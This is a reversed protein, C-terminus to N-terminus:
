RNLFRELADPLWRKGEKSTEGDQDDAGGLAQALARNELRITVDPIQGDIRFSIALRGRRDLLYRVIRYDRQVEQTLRPSLVLLGNWRTSRDFGIWGAGTITYDPTIIVLSETSVRKQEISFDAKFSDFPTDPRNFLAVFGPPVRSMAAASVASGSGKMLLQSILNFNKIVGHQVSAAGTGTLAKASVGNASNVHFHAQGNLRGELRDRFPPLLQALLARVDVADIQSSFRLQRAREGTAPWFGESRLTGDLTQARLNKFTLGAPALAIDARLDRLPWDNLNAHPAALSGTLVWQDNELFIETQGLVDKLRIPPRPSLGPLDALVLQPSRITSILRPQFINAASGNLLILSNGLRFRGNELRAKTGDFFLDAQLNDIARGSAKHKLAAENLKLGGSLRWDKEAATLNTAVTVDLDIKGAVTEFGPATLFKGWAAVSGNETRLTMRIRPIPEQDISGSFDIKNAGLDLESDHFILRHKGRSIRARITAPVNAPKHLWSKYHLEANDARVLAGLRLNEWTGAFRSHIRVSGESVLADPLTQEFVKFRRVRALSLPDISLTGELEAEEWSRRESFKVGGRIVANYESSGFLPIKLTIDELRPREPTGRARVQLAMPGTVDLQSPLKDRLAAIARAVVPVHLSDFQISLDVGRQLWSRNELPPALEGGIRVDQGLGETLSAAIHIRTAEAPQFGTVRMSINKVRLEAPPKASRDVYEVRGRNIAVEDISFSVPTQKREPAPARLRPFRRLESKQNLLQTLNLNGTEDTIVQFEPEDFTLSTIVLRRFLLNWLSVGLILERAQLVPTAAFRSDDAIRFERAVFGPRGLVNVELSKFSVDQGLVKQLEQTVQDRHKAALLNFYEILGAGLLAVAAVIILTFKRLSKM